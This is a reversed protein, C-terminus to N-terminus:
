RSTNGSAVARGGGAQQVRRQLQRRATPPSPPSPVQLPADGAEAAWTLRGPRADAAGAEPAPRGRARRRDPLIQQGHVPRDPRAAHLVTDTVSGLLEGDLYVTLTSGIMEFRVTYFQADMAIPSKRV